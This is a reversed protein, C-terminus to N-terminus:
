MVLWWYTGILTTMHIAQDLGITDWFTAMKNNKWAWKTVRSTCWDTVFHGVLNVLAFEWGFWFFPISYLLVHQSLILNSSSKSEGVKRTQLLFDAVYHFWILVIIDVIIKTEIVM